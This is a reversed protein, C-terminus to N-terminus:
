KVEICALGAPDYHVDEIERATFAELDVTEVIVDGQADYIVQLANILKSIKM